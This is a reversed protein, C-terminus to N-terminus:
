ARFRPRITSPMEMWGENWSRILREGWERWIVDEVRTPTDRPLRGLSNGDFYILEDPAIIFRQHFRALPDTGDLTTAIRRDRM